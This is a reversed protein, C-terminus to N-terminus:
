QYVFFPKLRKSFDNLWNIRKIEDSLMFSFYEDGKFDLAKVAFSKALVYDGIKECAESLKLLAYSSIFDNAKLRNKFHEIVKKIQTSDKCSNLLVPVTFSRVSDSNLRFLMEFQEKTEATIYKKLSDAGLKLMEKKVLINNEYVIHPNQNMVKDFIENAEEIKDNLVFVEGMLVELTYYYRTKEFKKIEKKLIREAEDYKKLKILSNIKGSLSQFSGSYVYVDDFVKLAEKYKKRNYFDSAKNTQAAAIRPCHKNFIPQGGFYLM